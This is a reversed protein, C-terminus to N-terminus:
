IVGTGPVYVKSFTPDPEVVRVLCQRPSTFFPVILDDPKGDVKIGPQKTNLDYLVGDCIFWMRGGSIVLSVKMEWPKGMATRKTSHCKLEADKITQHKIFDHYYGCRFGQAIHNPQTRKSTRVTHQLHGSGYFCISNRTTNDYNVAFGFTIEGVNNPLGCHSYPEQKNAQEILLTVCLMEGREAFDSLRYFFKPFEEQRHRNDGGLIAAVDRNIYFLNDIPLATPLSAVGRHWKPKYYLFNHGEIDRTDRLVRDHLRSPQPTGRAFDLILDQLSKPFHKPLSKHLADYEAKSLDDSM